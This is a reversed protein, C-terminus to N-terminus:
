NKSIKMPEVHLNHLTDESSELYGMENLGLIKLKQSLALAKFTELAPRETIVNRSKAAPLRFRFELGDWLGVRLARWGHM